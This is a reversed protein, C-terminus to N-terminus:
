GNGALVAVFPNIDDFNVVGDRNIDGTIISCNPYQQGYGAPDTLALVFPNIDDFNVAEDCNLDGRLYFTVQYTQQAMQEVLTRDLPSARLERNVWLNGQATFFASGPHETVGVPLLARAVDVAALDVWQSYSQGRQSLITNIDPTRLGAWVTNHNPDLAGYGELTAFYSLRYTGAGGSFARQWGRPDAGYNQVATQWGTALSVDVYEIEPPDLPATPNADLRAKLTKLWYCLGGQGGGYIAVLEPADGERFNTKLHYAAAYYPERTDSHAGAAHWSALVNLASLANASLTGGLVDRIHLGARVIERHVPNVDDYHVDLVDAPTFSAVGKIRQALRWSRITDGNAGVYLPIPYWAGVPLHNGSWISGEAPDYVYPRVHLPLTDQWDFRSASGDQAILGGVPSEISRVPIPALVWYGIGGTAEGFVINAAPHRWKALAEVFVARTTGRMMGIAAQVTHRDTDSNPLAKWVFEEGAQVGQCLPTVVPGLITDRVTIPVNTGDKVVITEQSVAMDYVHGDYEYRNTGVMKLEFLDAMDGGLASLGWAVGGNWGILFGPCGAVGIGRADFTAGRVHIEHWIPPSAIATQPDSHLVAAGTTTKTGGVVWTHSFKPGEEQVLVRGALGPNNPDFGHERAYRFIEERVAPPVDSEKVVAADEDLIRPPCFIAIAQELGYQAVLAEFEHQAQVKNYGTGAFYDGMRNWAGLCDAPTWPEPVRGAFLYLLEGTHTAIYHNVGDCYAQLLRKTEGDLREAVRRAYKDLQRHRFDKDQNVTTGFMGGSQLGVWEALRGQVARRNRQMQFMRDEATAYGAGFFAGEDSTAFVHPTGWTDRIITVQEQAWGASVVAALGMILVLGRACRTRVVIAHRTSM